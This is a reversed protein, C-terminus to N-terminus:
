ITRSKNDEKRKKKNYKKLTKILKLSLILRLDLMLLSLNHYCKLNLNPSTSNSQYLLKRKIKESIMLTIILTIWHLHISHKKELQSNNFKLLLNMVNKNEKHWNQYYSKNLIPDKYINLGHMLSKKKSLKSILSLDLYFMCKLWIRVLYFKKLSQLHCSISDSVFLIHLSLSYLLTMKAIPWPQIWKFFLITPRKSSDRIDKYVM